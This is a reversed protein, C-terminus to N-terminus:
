RLLTVTGKRVHTSAPDYQNTYRIVWVYAGQPCPRGQRDRGDWQCDPEDCSFVLRGTRDYILMQQQLTRISVSGFRNNGDPNDPMFINPVWFSEKNLLLLLSATDVCGYESFAVLRILASDLDVPINYHLEDLQSESGDPLLWIHSGAGISVDTLLAELHDFDYKDRPSYIRAELPHLTFKLQVVSDCGWQNVLHLTDSAFTATNSESYTVGNIWLYPKCDDVIDIYRTSDFVTLDLRVVSDCGAITHLTVSPGNVSQTYTQGNHGWTFTEGACIGVRDVTDFTPFIRILASDFNSCGSMFDVSVRLWISDTKDGYSASYSEDHLLAVRLGTTDTLLLSDTFPVLTGYLMRDASWRINVPVQLPPHTLEAFAEDGRCIDLRHGNDYSNGHLKISLDNSTDMGIFITDYLDYWDNNSNRFKLHVVYKSPETPKVIASTRTPHDPDAPDMPNLPVSYGCALSDNLGAMDEGLVVSDRGDDFIRYWECMTNTHGQPTFRYAVSDLPTNFTNLGEPFFAAPSGEAVFHTSSMPNPDNEQPLGTANQIGIIGVGNQWTLDVGRRRVHVEIINSGEYCVIQYSCRNNLNSSGAYPPVGNWSCIIKRCPFEGQIGYYIGQNGSMYSALPHTDEYIGYIADRMRALPTPAGPTNDPWPIPASYLWPCTPYGDTFQDTAFTVLGNAGLRFNTKRVGFFFFAFPIDTPSPSFDDDTTIPMRTGRSFSPDPPDFPVQEVTYIGNFHEVPLYPEATLVITNTACTVVTDWGYIRYQRLPVHDYKQEILIEPCPSVVAQALAESCCWSSLALLPMMWLVLHKM